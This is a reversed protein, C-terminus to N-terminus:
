FRNNELKELTEMDMNYNDYQIERFKILSKATVLYRPDKTEVFRAKDTKIASYVRIIFKIFNSKNNLSASKYCDSYLTFFISDKKLYKTLMENGKSTDDCLIDFLDQQEKTFPIVERKKADCMKKIVACLLDSSRRSHDKLMPHVTYMVKFVLPYDDLCVVATNILRNIFNTTVGKARPSTTFMRDFNYGAFFCELAKEYEGAAIATELDAKRQTISIGKFDREENYINCSKGLVIGSYDPKIRKSDDDVGSGDVTHELLRKM